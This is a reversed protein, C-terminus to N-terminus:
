ASQLHRCFSTSLSNQKVSASAKKNQIATYL